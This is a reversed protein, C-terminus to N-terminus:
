TRQRVATSPYGNPTAPGNNYQPQAHSNQLQHPDPVATRPSPGILSTPRSSPSNPYTQWPTPPTPQWEDGQPTRQLNHMGHNPPMGLQSSPPSSSLPDVPQPPPRAGRDVPPSFPSNAPPREMTPSSLPPYRPGANNNAGLYPTTVTPRGKVRMYTDCKKMFEKSPLDLSNAFYEQDHLISLLEEPVTFFIDQNELLSTVVRTSSLTEDPSPNLNRSHLINPSIVTALNDLDMKSGTEADLHAFSAVWKLFVFLVEMTDRHSKPLLLSVLHLYRKRDEENLFAPLSSSTLLSMM